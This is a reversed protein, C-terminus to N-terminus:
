AERYAQGRGSNTQTAAPDRTENAAFVHLVDNIEVQFGLFGGVFHTTPVPDAWGTLALLLIAMVSLMLTRTM